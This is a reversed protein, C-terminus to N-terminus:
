NNVRGRALVWTSNNKATSGLVLTKSSDECLINGCLSPEVAVSFVVLLVIFTALANFHYSIM